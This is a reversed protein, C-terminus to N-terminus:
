RPCRASRIPQRGDAMTVLHGGGPGSKRQDTQLHESVRLKRSIGARNVLDNIADLSTAAVGVFAVQPAGSKELDVQGPFVRSRQSYGRLFPLNDLNKTGGLYDCRLLPPPPPQKIRRM